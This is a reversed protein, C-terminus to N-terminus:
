ETLENNKPDNQPQISNIPVVWENQPKLLGLQSMEERNKEQSCFDLFQGPDNDFRVRLSSPLENFLSKAGAILNMSEQYEIGTVDLYQPAIQNLAPIQGNRIFQSMLVNIDCEDKFEQKTFPSNESFTIQLRKRPSYGSLSLLPTEDIPRSQHKKYSM